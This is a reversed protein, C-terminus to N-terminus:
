AVDEDVIISSKQCQTFSANRRRMEQGEEDRTKTKKQSQQGEPQTQQQGALDDGRKM